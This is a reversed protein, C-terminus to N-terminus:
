YNKEYYSRLVRRHEFNEARSTVFICLLASSQMVYYNQFYFLVQLMGNRVIVLVHAAKEFFFFFLFSLQAAASDAWNRHLRLLRCIGISPSPHQLHDRSMCSEIASNRQFIKVIEIHCFLDDILGL